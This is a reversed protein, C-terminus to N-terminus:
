ITSDKNLFTLPGYFATDGILDKFVNVQSGILSPVPIM